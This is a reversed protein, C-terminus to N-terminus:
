LFRNVSRAACDIVQEQEDFIARNLNFGVSILIPSWSSELSTNIEVLRGGPPFGHRRSGLNVTHLEACLMDITKLGCNVRKAGKLALCVLWSEM